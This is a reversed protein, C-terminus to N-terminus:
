VDSDVSRGIPLFIGMEQRLLWRKVTLGYRFGGLGGGTRLVRHCPVFLAAANRSCAGSAARAAGPHGCRGALEAYTVTEGAPVARLVAWAHEIFPGSRQRVPVAAPADLDGDLYARLARSAAGADRRRRPAVLPERLVLAEPDAEWGSALVAGDGDVLVTFPGIPTPHTAFSLGM